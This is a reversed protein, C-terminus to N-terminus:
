QGSVVVITGSHGIIAIPSPHSVRKVDVGAPMEILSVASRGCRLSHDGVKEIPKRGSSKEVKTGTPRREGVLISAHDANVDFCRVDGRSVKDASVCSPQGELAVRQIPRQKLVDDLMDCIRDADKSLDSTHHSPARGHQQGRWTSDGSGDPIVRGVDATEGPSRQNHEDIPTAPPESVPRAPDATDGSSAAEAEHWVELGDQGHGTESVPKPCIPDDLGGCGASLTGKTLASVALRSPHQEGAEDADDASGHWERSASGECLVPMPSSRIIEAVRAM